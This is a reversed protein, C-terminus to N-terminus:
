IVKPGLPVKRVSIRIFITNKRERNELANSSSHVGRVSLYDRVTSTNQPRPTGRPLQVSRIILVFARLNPRAQWRGEPVEM